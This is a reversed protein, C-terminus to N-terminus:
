CLAWGGVFAVDQGGGGDGEGETGKHLLMREKLHFVFSSVKSVRM